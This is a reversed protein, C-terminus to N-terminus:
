GVPGSSLGEVHRDCGPYKNALALEHAPLCVAHKFSSSKGATAAAMMDYYDAQVALCPFNTSAIKWSLLEGFSTLFETVMKAVQRADFAQRPGDCIATAMVRAEPGDGDVTQGPHHVDVFRAKSIFEVCWGPQNQRLDVFATRADRIDTYHVYIVGRTALDTIM